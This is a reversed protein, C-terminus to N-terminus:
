IDEGQMYVGAATGIDRSIDVFLVDFAAFLAANLAQGAESESFAIYAELDSEEIPEFALTLYPYVWDKTDARIEPEQEWVIGLIRDPTLSSDLADGRALGEYFALSSNLAGAVNADILDNAVVFREIQDLRPDLEGVLDDYIQKATEEIEDDLFARRASIEFRVIEQGQDSAFFQILAPIHKPDLHVEFNDLFGTEMREFSYIRDVARLWGPGSAGGLMDASLDEGYQLGEQRMIELIEAFKMTEYVARATDARASSVWFSVVLAPLVIAAMLSRLGSHM